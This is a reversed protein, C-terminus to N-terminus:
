TAETLAGVNGSVHNGKGGPAAFTQAAGTNHFQISQAINGSIASSSVTNALVIEPGTSSCTCSTIKNYSSAGSITIANGTIDSVTCGSVSISNAGVVEIGTKFGTIKVNRISVNDATIKIAACNSLSAGPGKIHLDSIGVGSQTISFIPGTGAGVDGSIELVTAGAGDGKINVSKDITSTNNIVWTDGALSISKGPVMGGLRAIPNEDSRVQMVGDLRNVIIESIGDVSEEELPFNQKNKIM